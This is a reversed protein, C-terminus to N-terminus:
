YKHEALQHSKSSIGCFLNQWYIYTYAQINKTLKREQEKFPKLVFLYVNKSNFFFVQARRTNEGEPPGVLAFETGLPGM